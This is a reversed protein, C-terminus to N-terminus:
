FLGLFKAPDGVNWLFRHRSASGAGIRLPANGAMLRNLLNRGSRGNDDLIALGIELQDKKNESYEDLWSDVSFNNQRLQASLRRLNEEERLFPFLLQMFVVGTAYMDFAYPFFTNVVEEPPIYLPDGVIVKDSFNLKSSVEVASGFDILKLRNDDSVIVNSPKLDRHVIGCEHVEKLGAIIHYMCTKVVRQTREFDTAPQEHLNPLLRKDLNFVWDSRRLIQELTFDGEREFVLCRSASDQYSGLFRAVNKMASRKRLKINVYLEIDGFYKALPDVHVKKVVIASKEQTSDEADM